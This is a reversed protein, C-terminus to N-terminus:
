LDNYKLTVVLEKNVHTTDLSTKANCDHTVILNHRRKCKSSVAALNRSLSNNKAFLSLLDVHLYNQFLNYMNQRIKFSGHM